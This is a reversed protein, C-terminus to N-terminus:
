GTLARPGPVETPPPDAPPGTADSGATAAGPRDRLLALLEDANPLAPRPRAGLRHLWDRTQARPELLRIISEVVQPDFQTGSCRRLEALADVTSRAPRYPRNTTMASYADCACIIRAEIPIEEGCSADPYGRGDYREHCSRVIRGVSALTGGVMSLMQEGHVPHKEVIAWEAEDLSGPKNLIEKPIHIKGVDHLLAALEVNRQQGPELQLEAAVALSLDVVDRSHMGTYHDDAEVIDGLLMATGRYATSLAITEDMRQQRERAFLYLLALPSLSLLVLEPHQVAAAAIVLGLPALAADVVYVWALRPLQVGPPIREGIWCRSVTSAMDCAFQAGLAGLYIPWHSWSFSRGGALGIVLAPGISFWADAVPVAVLGPRVQRRLLDGARRLISAALAVLPVLPVPLLFLAPVLALMTPYTWGGAVPFRVRELVIWVGLVFALNVVSFSHHWPVFVAVATAALLFAVGGVAHATLQRAAHRQDRFRENGAVLLAEAEPTDYADITRIRSAKMM